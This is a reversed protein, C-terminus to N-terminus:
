SGLGLAVVERSFVPDVIRLGIDRLVEHQTALALAPRLFANDPSLVGRRL